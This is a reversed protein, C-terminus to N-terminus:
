VGVERTLESISRPTKFRSRDTRTPHITIGNDELISLLEIMAFSDLLGSDLLECEPDFVSDDGCVEYLIKSIESIEM